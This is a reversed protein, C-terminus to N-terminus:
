RNDAAAHRRGPWPRASRRLSRPSARSWGPRASSPRNAPVARDFIDAADLFQDAARHRQNRGTGLAVVRDQDAVRKASSQCRHRHTIVSACWSRGSKECQRQGGCQRGRQVDRRDLLENAVVFGICGGRLGLRMRRGDAAACEAIRATRAPLPASRRAPRCHACRRRGACHRQAVRAARHPEAQEGVPKVHDGRRGLM